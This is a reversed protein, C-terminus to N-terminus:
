KYLILNQGRMRLQTEKLSDKSLMKLRNIWMEFPVRSHKGGSIQRLIDAETGKVCCPVILYPIQLKEGVIVIEATAEDPHLGVILDCKHKWKRDFYLSNYVPDIVQANRGTNQLLRSLDGKGDAVCLISYARPYNRLIFDRTVEFRRSDGM